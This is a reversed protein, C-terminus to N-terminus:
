ELEKKKEEMKEDIAEEPNKEDIIHKIILPKPM